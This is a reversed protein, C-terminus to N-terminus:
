KSCKNRESYFIIKLDLKNKTSDKNEFVWPKFNPIRVQKEKHEFIAEKTIAQDSCENECKMNAQM